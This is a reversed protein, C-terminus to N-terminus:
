PAEPVERALTAILRALEEVDYPKSLQAQFGAATARDRDQDRAYGTVAIAPVHSCQPGSARLRQLLDHGAEGPMDIDLVVVTPRWKSCIAIAEAANSAAMVDAGQSVLVKSMRGCASADDSTVLIRLGKLGPVGDPIPEAASPKAVFEKASVITNTSIPLKVRFTSGKGAGASEAAVTGGHLEVLHRVIALGLGLGANKRTTSGAAQRFREFLYPLLDPAIGEGTDSIEIEYMDGVRRSKVDIRGGEPTFKVANSLLNGFVQQMRAADYEIAGIPELATVIAIQKAQASLRMSSIAAEIAEEILGPERKLDLKGATVRSIDLLDNILQNQLNANREVTEIAKAQQEASLRGTRMLHLWGLMASMPSRLEHSLTALFEDKMRAVNEADSRARQEIRLLQDRWQEERKRATVDLAVGIFRTAHGREDVHFKGYAAIWRESGNEVVVRHERSFLGGSRRADDMAELVAERDEPHIRNRWMDWHADGAAPEYGILDGFERNWHASGDRLDIDWTALGAGEIALRMRAAGEDPEPASV